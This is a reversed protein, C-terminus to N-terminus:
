QLGGKQIAQNFTIEKCLLGKGYNEGVVEDRNADIRM